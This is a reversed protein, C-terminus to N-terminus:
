SEAKYEAREQVKSASGRDVGNDFLTAVALGIVLLGIIVVLSNFKPSKNDKGIINYQSKTQETFDIKRVNNNQEM